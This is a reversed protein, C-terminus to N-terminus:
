KAKATALATALVRGAEEYEACMAVLAAAAKLIHTPVELEAKESATAGIIDKTLRQLAKKAAEYGKAEVDLRVGEGREKAVLAVKYYRAVPALLAERVQPSLQGRLAAKLSAIAVGYSGAADLADVVLTNISTTTSTPAKM